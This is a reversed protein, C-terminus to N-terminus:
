NSLIEFLRRRFYENVAEVEAKISMGFHADIEDGIIGMPAPLSRKGYYFIVHSRVSKAKLGRKNAYDVLLAETTLAEQRMSRKKGSDHNGHARKIEYTKLSKESKNWVLVDVQFTGDERGYKVQKSVPGYSDSPMKVAVNKAPQSVKFDPDTWVEFEDNTALQARIAAELINGHRKYASSMLSVIRSFHQGALPDPEFKRESLATITKEVDPKM